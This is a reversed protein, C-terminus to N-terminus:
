GVPVLPMEGQVVGAAQLERALLPALSKVYSATLHSGQRLILRGGIAPPCMGGPPCVWDNLNVFVSGPVQQVAAQMAPTGGGENRTYSCARYDAQERQVCAYVPPGGPLDKSRPLPNDAIAVVKAGADTLATWYEVMGALFEPQVKGAGGSRSRGQSIFVLDPVAGPATLAALTSSGFRQCSTYDQGNNRTMFATFSCASKVYLELRWHEQLAISELAPLWQGMKSDGVVAVRVTGNVDGFVCNPILTAGFSDQQCKRAYIDPVDLTAVDPEPSLSGTSTFQSTPDAIMAPVGATAPDAILAVAGTQDATAAKLVPAQQVVVVAVAFSLAMGAGGIFLSRGMKATVFRSFRVPDEVLHRTLWALPISTLGVLAVQATSLGPWHAKALVILPWHWLYISYSLGGVWRMPRMGLLRAVPTDLSACGAAIVATTGVVPLLAAKGPWATATSVVVLTLGILAIGVLSTAQAFRRGLTAVWPSLIALLAGGGLEWVRTTTVFYATAPSAATRVVSWWLSAVFIASLLVFSLTRFSWKVRRAVFAAAMLLLPWGVYFQEEVSLSWFHQLPSAGADEALYDVSRSALVWNLVYGAAAAVDVGLDHFRDASLVVLGALATAVLVVTAAPLLRRARRSYFEGISVRGSREVEKLLLSTILFGSIVFFVDVGAFGGSLKSVGIHFLLVSLVAIARLGEIDGRLQTPAHASKSM